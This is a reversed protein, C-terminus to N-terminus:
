LIIWNIYIAYHVFFSDQLLDHYFGSVYQNDQRITYVLSDNYNSILM